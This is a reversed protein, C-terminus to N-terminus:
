RLILADYEVTSLKINFHKLLGELREYNEILVGGNVFDFVHYIEPSDLLIRKIYAPAIVQDGISFMLFYRFEELTMDFPNKFFFCLDHDALDQFGKASILELYDLSDGLSVKKYIAEASLIESYPLANLSEDELFFDHIVIDSDEASSDDRSDEGMKWLVFELYEAQLDPIEKKRKLHRLAEKMEFVFYTSSKLIEAYNEM